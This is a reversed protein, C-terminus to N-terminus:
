MNAQSKMHMRQCNCPMTSISNCASFMPPRTKAGAKAKYFTSELHAFGPLGASELWIQEPLSVGESDKASGALNLLM